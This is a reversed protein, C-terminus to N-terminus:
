FNVKGQLSNLPDIILSKGFLFSFTNARDRGFNHQNQGDSIDSLEKVIHWRAERHKEYTAKIELEDLTRESFRHSRFCFLLVKRKAILFDVVKDRRVLVTREAIHDERVSYRSITDGEEDGYEGAEDHYYTIRRRLKAFNRFSRSLFQYKTRRVIRPKSHNFDHSWNLVRLSKLVQRPGLPLCSAVYYEIYSQREQLIPIFKDNWVEPDVIRQKLDNQLIWDDIMSLSRLSLRPDTPQPLM